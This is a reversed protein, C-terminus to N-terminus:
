KVQKLQEKMAAIVFKAYNMKLNYTLSILLSQITTGMADGGAKRSSLCMILLHM